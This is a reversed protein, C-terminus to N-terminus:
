ELRVAATGTLYRKGIDQVPESRNVAVCLAAQWLWIVALRLKPSQGFLTGDVFAADIALNTALIIRQIQEPWLLLLRGDPLPKGM